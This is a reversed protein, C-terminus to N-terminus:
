HKWHASVQNEHSDHLFTQLFSTQSMKGPQSKGTTSFQLDLPESEMNDKVSYISVNYRLGPRLDGLTVSTQTEPLILETSSGEVSPTYVVRYGLCAHKKNYLCAVTKLSPSPKLLVWRHNTRQTEVMQDRYVEGPCRHGPSQNAQRTSYRSLLRPETM